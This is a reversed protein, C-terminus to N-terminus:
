AKAGEARIYLSYAMGTALTRAYELADKDGGELCELISLATAGQQLLFVTNDYRSADDLAAVIREPRPIFLPIVMEAQAYAQLLGALTATSFTITKIRSFDKETVPARHM